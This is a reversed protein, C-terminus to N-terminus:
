SSSRDGVREDLLARVIVRDEGLAHFEGSYADSFYRRWFRKPARVDGVPRYYKFGHRVPVVHGLESWAFIREFPKPKKPDLTRRELGKETLRYEYRGLVAPVLPVTFAVAGVVLAKVAEASRIFLHAVLIMAVFVALVWLLIVPQMKRETWRHLVAEEGRDNAM